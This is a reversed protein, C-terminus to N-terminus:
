IFWAGAIGEHRDVEGRRASRAGRQVSGWLWPALVLGVPITPATLTTGHAPARVIPCSPRPRCWASQGRLCAKGVYAEIVQFTGNWRAM